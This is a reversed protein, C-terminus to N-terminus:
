SVAEAVYEREAQLREVEARLADMASDKRASERMQDLIHQTAAHGNHQREMSTLLGAVVVGSSTVFAAQGREDLPSNVEPLLAVQSVRHTQQAGVLHFM